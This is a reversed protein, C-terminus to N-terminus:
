PAQPVWNYGEKVINNSLRKVTASVSERNSLSLLTNTRDLNAIVNQNQVETGGNIGLTNVIGSLTSPVIISITKSLPTAVNTGGLWLVYKEINPFKGLGVAESLLTYGGPNYSTSHSDIKLDDTNISIWFVKNKGYTAKTLYAYSNQATNGVIYGTTTFIQNTSSTADLGDVKFSYVVVLDKNNLYYNTQPISNVSLTNSTNSLASLKGLLFLSAILPLISKKM